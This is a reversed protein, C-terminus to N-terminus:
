SRKNGLQSLGDLTDVAGDMQILDFLFEPFNQRQKVTETNVKASASRNNDSQTASWDILGQAMNSAGYGPEAGSVDLVFDFLSADSSSDQHPATDDGMEVHREGEALTESM